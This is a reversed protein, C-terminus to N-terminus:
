GNTEKFMEQLKLYDVTGTGTIPINETIVIEDPIVFNEMQQEGAIKELDQKTADKYTTFLIIEKKRNRLIRIMAHKSDKWINSIMVELETLSVPEGDVKVFRKSKGKMFIFKDKDIEVIDGTDFWNDDNKKSILQKNEIYYDAVNPGKVLLHSAGVFATTSELKCEMAPLMRGVSYQKFYMPTNISITSSTETTGYAEFIRKGFNEEWMKITEEKLKEIGSIVYRISYFDYPHANQAYGSLFTDTGLLVTSSTDYVLESVMKYHLPSHYVFVKIGRLLPLLIGAIFGLSSFIPMSNFFRDAIGFDMVSSIQAVSAQINKHTLVVTKSKGGSSGTFMIVAPSENNFDPCIQKYYYNPFYSMLWSFIKNFVNISEKLDEEYIIKINREILKEIINNPKFERIFDKSTYVTKIGANEICNLINETNDTYNIMAPIRGTSSLAFFIEVTTKTNALMVGIYEGASTQKKIKNAFSFVDCLLGGMSVSQRKIDDLIEKSRGVLSINQILSCFLTKNSFNSAFKMECMIDYLKTMAINRRRNESASKAVDLKRAPLVTLKIKRQRKSKTKTGFYSFDSYQIGEICIPLIDANSKDAVVAPGPYVKMLGGTTTIRGEPFIAVIGGKKLEDVISKVVMVNSNDMPFYKITKLFPQVWWKKTVDSNIAFSVKEGFVVSLIIGDLFSTHNAIILTGAKCNDFHQKGVVEISYFINLVRGIILRLLHAPLLSCIYVAAVFNFLAIITLIVPVALNIKIFILCVASGAIMFLINVINNAAIVRARIKRSALVQLLTMIPVIYLGAFVSFALLDIIVRIGPFTFIFKRISVDTLLLLDLDKAVFSLDLMFITMLLVSIPIHKLSIEKKLLFYSLLSGLCIGCAFLIILFMYSSRQNQLVVLAFNPIQSVLVVAIFWFWSIGLICLYIDHSYKFYKINNFTTKIFNLSIQFTQKSEKLKPIFLSALFGTAAVSIFVIFLIKTDVFYTFSGFLIGLFMAAYTGIQILSNGAILKDKELIEPLISFKIPGLLASLTGMLFICILLIWINSVTFGIVAILAVILQLFKIRRILYDKEYKDAIEGAVASFLLSPLMFLAILFSAIIYRTNLSLSLPTFILFIILAIRFFNDNFTGLFQSIYFYIYSRSFLVKILNKLTVM